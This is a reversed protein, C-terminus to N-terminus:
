DSFLNQNLDAILYSDSVKCERTVTDATSTVDGILANSQTANTIGEAICAEVVGYNVCRVLEVGSASGVIAGASAEAIVLSTKVSVTGLNACDIVTAKFSNYLGVLGIIGGAHKQGTVSGAFACNKVVANTTSSVLGVLGGAVFSSPAFVTADSYCGDITIDAANIRGALAAIYGDNLTSEFYSNVIGFNKITAGAGLVRFFGDFNTATKLYIGSVTHGEGDFTGKFGDIPTWSFAPATRAWTAANGENFVLDCKLSVTKGAFGDNASILPILVYLADASYIDFQTEGAAIAKNFKEYYEDQLAYDGTYVSATPDTEIEGDEPVSQEVSQKYIKVDKLTTDIVNYYSYIMFGFVDSSGVSMPQSEIKIWDAENEGTKDKALIYSSITSAVGDYVQKMTVFGNADEAFASLESFMKYSGIKANAKSLAARRDATSNNEGVTNHNTYNNYFMAGNVDGNVIWGGVGVSNNKGLTGNAKAKYIMTYVTTNDATLGTIAGGWYSETKDTGGSKGKVTLSAGNDGVTYEFNNAANGIPKPSFKADGSFNVEYVPETASGEASAPIVSVTLTLIMILSLILSLTKKM